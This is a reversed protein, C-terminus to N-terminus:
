RRSRRLRLRRRYQAQLSNALLMNAEAVTTVHLSQSIWAPSYSLSPSAILIFNYSTGPSLGTISGITHMGITTVDLLISPTPINYVPPHFASFWYSEADPINTWSFTVSKSTLASVSATGSATVATFLKQFTWMLFANSVAEKVVVAIYYTNNATLGTLTAYSWVSTNIFNSFTQLPSLSTNKSNQYFFACSTGDVSIGLRSPNQWAVSISTDDFGNIALQFATYVRLPVSSSIAAIPNFTPILISLPISSYATIILSYCTSGTLGSLTAACTGTSGTLFNLAGSGIGTIGTIPSYSNYAYGYGTAGSVSNWFLKITTDDSPSPLGEAIFPALFQVTVPQSTTTITPTSPNSVESTISVSYNGAVSGSPLTITGTITGNSNFVLDNLSFVITLADSTSIHTLTYSYTVSNPTLTASRLPNNVTVNSGLGNWSLKVPRPNIPAPTSQVGPLAAPPPELVPTATFDSTTVSLINSQYSSVTGVYAKVSIRYTTSASLGQIEFGKAGGAIFLSPTSSNSVIEYSTLNQPASTTWTWDVKIVDSTAYPSSITFTEAGTGGNGGTGGTGDTTDTGGNGGTGGTGDTTDTGGNGGTVGTGDTTDTGGNGGTGGTEGPNDTGGTGDTTDTGGTGDTTDTGGTGGTTDTGGTGGTTVTCTQSFFPSHIINWQLENYTLYVIYETGSQFGDFDFNDQSAQLTIGKIIDDSNPFKGTATAVLQVFPEESSLSWVVHIGGASTAYIDTIQFDLSATSWTIPTFIAALIEGSDNTSDVYASLTIVYETNSSLGTIQTFRTNVDLRGSYYNSEETTDLIKHYEYRMITGSPLPNWAVTISGTDFAKVYAQLPLTSATVNQFIQITDSGDYAAHGIFNYLMGSKLGNLTFSGTSGISTVLEQISVSGNGDRAGNFCAFGQPFHSSGGGGEWGGSGGGGGWWGGGGGGGGSGDNNGPSGQGGTHGTGPNGGNNGAGPTDKKGGALDPEGIDGGNGATRDNRQGFGGGGGAFVLSGINSYGGGSYFGGGGGNFGTTGGATVTYTPASNPVNIIGTVRAGRSGADAPGQGGAGYLDVRLKSIGASPTFSESSGSYEYLFYGPDLNEETLMNFAQIFYGETQLTSTEWFLEISNTTIAGFTVNVANNVTGNDGMQKETTKINFNISLHKFKSHIHKVNSYFNPTNLRREFM